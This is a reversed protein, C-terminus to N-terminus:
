VKSARYFKDLHYTIRSFHYSVRKLWRIAEARETAQPVTIEGAAINSMVDDRVPTLQALLMTNADSALTANQHWRQKQVNGIVTELVTIFQKVVLTLDKNNKAALARYEEEDCREHLRQLHDLIHIAAVLQQWQPDDTKGLHIYDVYAHTEDLATQMELLNIRQHDSNQSLISIVHELLARSENSIVSFIATLAVSPETLLAKDLNEAYTLTESKIMQEILYAFKATFPLVIIMGLINFCTHFGVLAIEANDILAGPAFYEWLLGYPSLLLLAGIATCINYIVHSVGTRRSSISGGISALVATVTTGVDMGIVLAAAQNFNIAGAFLATLSVAVGASSSQTILTIIIGLLVLKLRGIWTDAPFQEPTIVHELGSMGQQMMSIGVFILGFGALAFGISTIREKAFLKLITGLLIVPLIVTGLKLKFGLLVVLWGTITTGANAGFIIGLSQPFTMLGAGVFGVAAVTVASSSQLIVTSTAGTLAGSLPSKTLKKLANRMANGALEHLAGTMVIMGLLFIGLGGIAEFV